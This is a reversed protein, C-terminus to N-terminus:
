KRVDKMNYATEVMLNSELRTRLNMKTHILGDPKTNLDVNNNQNNYNWLPINLESCFIKTEKLWRHVHKDFDTQTLCPM